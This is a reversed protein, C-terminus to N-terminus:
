PAMRRHDGRDNRCPMVFDHREVAHHQQPGCGQSWHADNLSLGGEWGPADGKVQPVQLRAAFLLAEVPSEKMVAAVSARAPRARAMSAAMAGQRAKASM